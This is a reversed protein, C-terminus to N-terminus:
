VTRTAVAPSITAARRAPGAVALLGLGWLALIGVPVYLVDLRELDFSSVLWYNIAFALATGMLVGATTILWNELMFYNVIDRRRAGVARRTGIQKVRQRVAFSALGVIGVGTVAVMLVVIVALLIAMGKDAVYSGDKIESLTEMDRVIRQENLQALTEEVLPMVRDREGPETRILYRMGTNPPVLPVLMTNELKDWNVWSGHMREVIGIVTTPSDGNDYIASGLAGGDPFLEDAFARSIIVSEPKFSYNEPFRIDEETFARGSELKLGLAKLGHENVFFQAANVRPADDGPSPKMVTGWGSGSLPAQITSTVAVVGPIAELAVQDLRAQAQGDYDEGIGSSFVTIINEVDMGTPRDIKEIRQQIIFVANVLVALTLAIQVAILIPGTKNRMSARWIPGLHM